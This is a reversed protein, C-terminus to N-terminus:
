DKWKKLIYRKGIAKTGMNLILILEDNIDPYITIDKLKNVSFFDFGCVRKDSGLSLNDMDAEKILFTPQILHRGDYSISEVLFLFEFSVVRIRLEEKLERKVCGDLTEGIEIGGGPLLWYSKDYKCHKVLLLKNDKIIIAAIRIRL